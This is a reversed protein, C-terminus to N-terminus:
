KSGPREADFDGDALRLLWKRVESHPVSPRPNALSKAVAAALAATEAESDDMDPLPAM